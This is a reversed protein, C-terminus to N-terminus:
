RWLGLRAGIMPIETQAILEHETEVQELVWSHFVGQEDAKCKPGSNGFIRANPLFAYGNDKMCDPLANPPAPKDPEKQQIAAVMCQNVMAFRDSGYDDAKGYNPNAARMTEARLPSNLDVNFTIGLLAAVAVVGTVITKM